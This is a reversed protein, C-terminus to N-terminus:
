VEEHTVTIEIQNDADLITELNIQELNHDKLYYFVIDNNEDYKKLQNILDKVLM